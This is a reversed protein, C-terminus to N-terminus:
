DIGDYLPLGYRRSRMFDIRGNVSERLSVFGYVKEFNLHRDSMAMRSSAFALHGVTPGSVPPTNAPIRRPTKSASFLASAQGDSAAASLSM